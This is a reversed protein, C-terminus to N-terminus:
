GRCPEAKPRGSAVPGLAKERLGCHQRLKLFSPEERLRYLPHEPDMSDRTITYCHVKNLDVATALDAVAAAPEGHLTRLIGREVYLSSYNPDYGIASEVLRTAERLDEPNQRRAIVALIYKAPAVFADNRIADSLADVAGDMDCHKFYYYGLIYRHKKETIHRLAPLEGSTYAWLSFALEEEQRKRESIKFGSNDYYQLWSLLINVALSLFVIGYVFRRRFASNPRVVREATILVFAVTSMATIILSMSM